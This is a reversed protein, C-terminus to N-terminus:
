HKELYVDEENVTVTRGQYDILYDVTGDKKIIIAIIKGNYTFDKHKAFVTDNIKYKTKVPYKKYYQEFKKQWDLLSLKLTSAEDEAKHCRKWVRQKDQSIGYSIAGVILFLNIFNIVLFILIAINM